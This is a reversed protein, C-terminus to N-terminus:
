GGFAYGDTGHLATLLKWRSIPRLVVFYLPAPITFHLNVVDVRERQLFSWLQWLTVPLKARFALFGKL